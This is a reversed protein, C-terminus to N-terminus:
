VRCAHERWKALTHMTQHLDTSVQGSKITGSKQMLTDFEEAAFVVSDLEQFLWRRLTSSHFVAPTSASYLLFLVAMLKLNTKWPGQKTGIGTTATENPRSQHYLPSAARGTGSCRASFLSFGKLSCTGSSALCRAQCNFM